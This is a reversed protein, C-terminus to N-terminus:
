ASAVPMTRRNTGIIFLYDQSCACVLAYIYLLSLKVIAVCMCTGYMHTDSYLKFMHVKAPLHPLMAHLRAVEETKLVIYEQESSPKPVPVM